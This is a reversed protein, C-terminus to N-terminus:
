HTGKAKQVRCIEPNTRVKQKKYEASKRILTVVNFYKMCMIYAKEEDGLSEHLEAEKHIKEASKILRFILRSLIM